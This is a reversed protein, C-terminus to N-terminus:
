RSPMAARSRDPKMLYDFRIEGGEFRDEFHVNVARPALQDAVATLALDHTTVLGIAGRDLLGRLM